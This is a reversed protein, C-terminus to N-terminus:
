LNEPTTPDPLNYYDFGKGEDSVTFVIRDGDVEYSVKVQKSPDCDNGHM